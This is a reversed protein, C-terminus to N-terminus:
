QISLAFCLTGPHTSLLCFQVHSGPPPWGSMPRQDTHVCPVSVGGATWLRVWLGSNKQGAGTGGPLLSHFRTRFILAAHSSFYLAASFSVGGAGSHWRCNLVVQITTRAPPHHYHMYTPSYHLGLVWKLNLVDPWGRLVTTRFILLHVLIM